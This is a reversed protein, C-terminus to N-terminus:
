AALMGSPEHILMLVELEEGTLADVYVRYEQEQRSGSLEWCLREADRYPIVCLRESRILLEGSARSRAQQASLVPAPLQRETHNMLYNNSELGVLEGTDMRIQLKILDPYLLIGDQLPVFNIVAMGGYVQYHNPEADGYGHSLLFQRGAQACEELTLRPEFAAHEPMIWLLKGGQRTVDANLVVGDQLTLTVGWSPLVGGTEVGPVASKVREAGIFDRAIEVAAASDVMERGLAKPVGAHRADSFAGDYIMSPYDMGNDPDAVQELPRADLRASEYFVGDEAALRLSQALMSEHATALQGLLLLCQNRLTDLERVAQPSIEQGGASLLALTLTYDSLQNCFKITDSMAVHSLPLATLDSVVGDAQRSVGSLLEVQTRPNGAAPTKGLKLSISQLHEQAQLLRQAYGDELTQEAHEARLISAGATLVAIVAAIGLFTYLIAHHKGKM